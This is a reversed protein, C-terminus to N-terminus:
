GSNGSGASRNIAALHRAYALVPLHRALKALHAQYDKGSLRRRAHKILDEFHARGFTNQGHIVYCYLGPADSSLAIRHEARLADIAPTDEGSSLEPYRPLLARRVLMSGEWVRKNSIGSLGRGPWWLTWRQLFHAGTGAESLAKYQLELRRPHYLDDDDWQCVFEGDAAEVSLNRLAGLVASETEVYRIMPDGLEGLWAALPSDPRDCLVILERDPWTQRRFCQIAFRAPYLQGRTVMLCSIKGPKTM